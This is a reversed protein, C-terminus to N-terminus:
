RTREKLALQQHNNLCGLLLEVHCASFLLDLKIDNGEYDQGGLYPSLCVHLLSWCLAPLLLPFPFIPPSSPPPHSTPPSPPPTPPPHPFTSSYSFFSSNRFHQNGKSRIAWSFFISSSNSTFVCNSCSSSALISFRSVVAKSM